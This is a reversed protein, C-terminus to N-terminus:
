MLQRLGSFYIWIYDKTVSRIEDSDEAMRIIEFYGELFSIAIPRAALTNLGEKRPRGRNVKELHENVHKTLIDFLHQKAGQFKTGQSGDILILMEKHYGVLISALMTGLIEIVEVLSVVRGPLEKEHDQEILRIMNKYAPDVTAEFLAEKNAYYRYVNGVSIGTNKAIHHISAKEYGKDFFEEKASMLIAEEVEKKLYQM